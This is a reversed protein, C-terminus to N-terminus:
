TSRCARPFRETSPADVGGGHGLHKLPQLAGAVHGPRRIGGVSACYEDLCGFGASGEAGFDFGGPFRHFLARDGPQVGGLAGFQLRWAVLRAQNASWILHWARRLADSPRCITNLLHEHRQSALASALRGAVAGVQARRGSRTGSSRGSPASKFGDPSQLPAPTQVTRPSAPRVRNGRM